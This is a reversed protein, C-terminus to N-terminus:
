GKMNLLMNVDVIKYESTPINGEITPKRRSGNKRVTIGASCYPMYTRMLEKEVIKPTIIPSLNSDAYLTNKKSCCSLFFYEPMKNV